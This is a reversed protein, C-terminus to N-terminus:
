MCHLPKNCTHAVIRYIFQMGQYIIKTETILLNSDKPAFYVFAVSCPLCDSPNAM